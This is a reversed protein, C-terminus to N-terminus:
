FAYETDPEKDPTKTNDTSVAAEVVNKDPQEPQEPQETDATARKGIMDFSLVRVKLRSRKQGDQEWSENKLAGEILLASGKVLFRGITDAATDWAECPIFTTDQGKEGNSKKFYRSVALTFNVVSTERGNVTVVRVEPDRALNGKQIVKNM